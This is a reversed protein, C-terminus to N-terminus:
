DETEHGDPTRSTCGDALQQLWAMVTAAAAGPSDVVVHDAESKDSTRLLRVRLGGPEVWTRVIIVSWLPRQEVAGM